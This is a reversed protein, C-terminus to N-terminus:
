KKRAELIAAGKDVKAKIITPSKAGIAYAIDAQTVGALNAADHIAILLAEDAKRVDGALRQLRKVWAARQQPTPRV